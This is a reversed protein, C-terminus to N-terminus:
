GLKKTNTSTYVNNNLANDKLNKVNELVNKKEIVPRFFQSLIEDLQKDKKIDATCNDQLFQTLQKKDLCDLVQEPKSSIIKVETPSMSLAFIVGVDKEEIYSKLLKGVPSFSDMVILKKGSSEEQELLITKLDRKPMSFQNM